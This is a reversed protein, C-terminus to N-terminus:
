RRGPRHIQVEKLAEFMGKFIIGLEDIQARKDPSSFVPALSARLSVYDDERKKESRYIEWDPKNLKEKEKLKVDAIKVHKGSMEMWLYPLDDAYIGVLYKGKQLAYGIFDKRRRNDKLNLDFTVGVYGPSYKEEKIAFGSQEVVQKLMKKFNEIQTFGTQLADESITSVIRVGKSELFSVFEKILYGSQTDDRLKAEAKLDKLWDYVELWYVKRDAKDAERWDGYFRRLLILRKNGEPYPLEALRRKYKDMQEPGVHAEDKVEIWVCKSDSSVQADIRSRDKKEIGKQPRQTDFSIKENVDFNLGSLNFLFKACVEREKSGANEGWLSQLVYLLAVTWYDEPKKYKALVAFINNDM